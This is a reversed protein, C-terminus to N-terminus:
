EDDLFFWYQHLNCPLQLRNQPVCSRCAGILCSQQHKNNVRCKRRVDEKMYFTEGFKGKGLEKGQERVIEKLSFAFIM